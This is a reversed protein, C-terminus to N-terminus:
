RGIGEFERVYETYNTGIGEYMNELMKECLDRYAGAIEDAEHFRDQWIQATSKVYPKSEKEM